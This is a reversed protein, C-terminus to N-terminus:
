NQSAMFVDLMNGGTDLLADFTPQFDYFVFEDGSKKSTEGIGRRVIAGAYEGAFSDIMEAEFM